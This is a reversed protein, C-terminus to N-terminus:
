LFECMVLNSVDFGRETLRLSDKTLELLGADTFQRIQDKFLDQAKKHFVEEFHLLDVGESMRLGLIMTESIEEDVTLTTEEEYAMDRILYRELSSQNRYRKKKIQGSAGLGFGAYERRKWYGTNHRSEKGPKAYNSIEYRYMGIDRVTEKLADLMRDEEEEGPLFMPREGLKKVMDDEHYREWFATGEEIILSYASLHEPSLERVKGLTDEWIAATQGPLGYMLDISINDFGYERARSYERLFVEWTHIRGLTKLLTNDASQLGISLRNFGADKWARLKEGDMTGPNCEITIEADGKLTFVSRIKEMTKQIEDEPACSPTGGGFYVSVAEYEQPCSFSAIEDRLVQYYARQTKEDAPFSLFDCYACKRVCFPTHVYIGLEQRKM